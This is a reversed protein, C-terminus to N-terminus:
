FLPSRAQAAPRRPYRPDVPTLVRYAAYSAGSAQWTHKEGLGLAPVEDPWEGGDPATSVLLWGGPRVLPAGCEATWAPPGFSRAVVVDAASRAPGRAWVEARAHVPRVRGGLGLEAIATQLAEVRRAWADLLVWNTQPRHVALPLGPVGGGSGLDVAHTGPEFAVPGAAFGLAHAVVDDIPGPGIWGRGQAAALVSRLTATPEDSM